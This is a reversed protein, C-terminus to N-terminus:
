RVVADYAVPKSPGVAPGGELRRLHWMVTGSQASGLPAICITEDAAVALKVLNPVGPRLRRAGVTPGAACDAATGNKRAAAYLALDDRGDVDVHLLYAPGTILVWTAGGTIRATAHLDSARGRGASRTACGDAALVGVLVSFQIAPIARLM